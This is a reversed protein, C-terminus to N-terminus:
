KFINMIQESCLEASKYDSVKVWQIRKDANFWTMQRKAYRRTNQKILDSM